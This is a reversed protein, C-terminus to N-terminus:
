GRPARSRGALAELYRLVVGRRWVAAAIAQEASVAEFAVLDRSRLQAFGDQDASALVAIKPYGGTTQHDALLVIPDGHGPVQVAGRPLAESPMDLAGAVALRPGQLRVGMRDYEGTLAFPQTLLAEVAEPAFFREQPGLVVRVERRPRATVPLPLDREREPRREAGRVEIRQGAELRGGGFGSLVHTARSGLWSPAVIHGAFALYTWSGWFGPKVTLLSGERVPFVAWAGVAAGDLLAHFGGGVSAVTVAGEVCRLAVGGITTEIAAAGPPNGLSAQAIAFAHRDMPGSEAVGYRLFGFRGRDQVTTLPGAQEVVLVARGKTM